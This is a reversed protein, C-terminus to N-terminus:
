INLNFEPKKNKRRRVKKKTGYESGSILSYSDGSESISEYAEKNSNKNLYKDKELQIEKLIDDVGSPGSMKREIPVEVNKKNLRNNIRENIDKTNINKNENENENKTSNLNNMFSNGSFMSAMPSNQNAISNTFHFVAASSILTVILKVEPPMSPADSYKDHLEEWISTYQSKQDEVHATFNDLQLGFSMKKNAFEVLSVFFMLGNEYFQCSSELSIERQITELEEKM